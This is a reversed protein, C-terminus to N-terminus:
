PSYASCNEPVANVACRWRLLREQSYRMRGDDICWGNSRMSLPWSTLSKLSVSAEGLWNRQFGNGSGLSGVSKRWPRTVIAPLTSIATCRYAAFWDM